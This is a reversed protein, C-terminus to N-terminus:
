DYFRGTAALDKVAANNTEALRAMGEFFAQTLRSPEIQDFRTTHFIWESRPILPPETDVCFGDEIAKIAFLRGILSHVSASVFEAWEDQWHTRLYGEAVEVAM